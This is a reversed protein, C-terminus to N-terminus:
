SGSAIALVNKGRRGVEVGRVDSSQYPRSLKAVGVRRRWNRREHEDHAALTV